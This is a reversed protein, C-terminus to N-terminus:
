VVIAGMNYDGDDMRKAIRAEVDAVNHKNMDVRIGRWGKAMEWKQGDDSRQIRGDTTCRYYYTYGLISEIEIM